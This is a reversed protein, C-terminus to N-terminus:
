KLLCVRSLLYLRFAKKNSIKVLKQKEPFNQRNRKNMQESMRDNMLANMLGKFGSNFEM